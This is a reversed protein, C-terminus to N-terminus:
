THFALMVLELRGSGSSMNAICITDPNNLSRAAVQNELSIEENEGDKNQRREPSLLGKMSAKLMKKHYICQLYTQTTQFTTICTLSYYLVRHHVALCSLSKRRETNGKGDSQGPKLQMEAHHWLGVADHRNYSKVKLRYEETANKVTVQCVDPSTSVVKQALGFADKWSMTTQEFFPLIKKTFILNINSFLHDPLM